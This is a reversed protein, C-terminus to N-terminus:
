RQTPREHYPKPDGSQYSAETMGSDNGRQHRPVHCKPNANCGKGALRPKRKIGQRSRRLFTAGFNQWNNKASPKSRQAINLLSNKSMRKIKQEVEPDPKFTEATTKLFHRIRHVLIGLRPSSKAGELLAIIEADVKARFWTARGAAVHVGAASIPVFIEAPTDDPLEIELRVGDRVRRWSSSVKGRPTTVRARAFDLGTPTAPKIRVKAYGPAAPQIGAIYEYLWDEFTGLFAHDLSQGPFVHSWTEWSTTAGQTLWYGWSPYSTQTAIKYALDVDGHETLVPLLQKTGIAGTNLHDGHSHIDAVLNKYVADEHGTPVLGYSLPVLNSTQRYGVSVDNNYVNATPDFFENNLATQIQDALANYKATDASYGLISAMKALRRAELCLDGNASVLPVLYPFTGAEPPHPASKTETGPAVGTAM